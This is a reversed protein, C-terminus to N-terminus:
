NETNYKKKDENHTTHGTNGTYRSNDSRSQVVPKWWNIYYGIVRPWTVMGEQEATQRGTKDGNILGKV